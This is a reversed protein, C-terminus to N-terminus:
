PHHNAAPPAAVHLSFGVKKEETTSEDEECNASIDSMPLANTRNFAEKAQARVMRRYMDRISKFIPSSYPCLDIARRGHDDLASLDIFEGCQLLFTNM